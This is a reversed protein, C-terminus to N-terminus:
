YPFTGSLIGDRIEQLIKLAEARSSAKSLAKEVAEYYARTHIGQHAGRALWAGNAADHVGIGFRALIAKSGAAFRSRQAVIHHADMLKGGYRGAATLAKRLCPKGNHVLVAHKGAHYTHLGEVELNYVTFEGHRPPSIEEVVITSGDSKLLTDGSRLQSAPIWTSRNVVWFPHDPTATTVDGGITLDVVTNTVHKVTAIVRRYGAAELEASANGPPARPGVPMARVDKVTGWADGDLLIRDGAQLDAALSAEVQSVPIIEDAPFLYTVEVHDGPEEYTYTVAVEAIDYEASAEESRPSPQSASGKGDAADRPHAAAMAIGRLPNSCHQERAPRGLVNAVALSSALAFVTGALVALGRRAVPAARPHGIRPENSLVADFLHTSTM